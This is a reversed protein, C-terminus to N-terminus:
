DRKRNPKYEHVTHWTGTEDAVDIYVRTDDGRALWVAVRETKIKLDNFHCQDLTPRSNLFAWTYRTHHSYNIGYANRDMKTNPNDPNWHIDMGLPDYCSDELVGGCFCGRSSDMNMGLFGLEVGFEQRMSNIFTVESTLWHGNTCATLGSSGYFYPVPYPWGQDIAWAERNFQYLSTFRWQREREEQKGWPSVLLHKPHYMDVEHWMGDPDKVYIYATITAGNYLASDPRKWYQAESNPEWTRGIWVQVRDSELKLDLRQNNASGVNQRITEMKRLQEVYLKLYQRYDVSYAHGANREVTWNDM